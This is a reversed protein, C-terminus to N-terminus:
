QEKKKTEAIKLYFAGNARNFYNLQTFALLSKLNLFSNQNNLFFM